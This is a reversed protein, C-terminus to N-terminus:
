VTGGRIPTVQYGYNLQATTPKPAAARADEIARRVAVILQNGEREIMDADQVSTGDARTDIAKLLEAFETVMRTVDAGASKPDYVVFGQLQAYFTVFAANDDTLQLLHTLREDPINEHGQPDGWKSLTAPNIEMVEAIETRSMQAHNIQCHLAERRSKPACRLEGTLCEKRSSTM